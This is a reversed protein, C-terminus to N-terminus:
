NQKSFNKEVPKGGHFSKIHLVYAPDFEFKPLDLRLMRKMSEMENESFYPVLSTASYRINM